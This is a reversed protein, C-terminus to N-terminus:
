TAQLNSARHIRDSQVAQSAGTWCLHHENAFPQKVTSRPIRHIDIMFTQQKAVTSVPWSGIRLLWYLIAIVPYLIVRYRKSLVPPMCGSRVFSYSASFRYAFTKWRFTDIYTIMSVTHSTSSRAASWIKLTWWISARMRCFHQALTPNWCGSCSFIACTRQMDSRPHTVLGNCCSSLIHFLWWLFGHFHTQSSTVYILNLRWCNKLSKLSLPWTWYNATETECAAAVLRKQATRSSLQIHSVIGAPRRQMPCCGIAMRIKSCIQQASTPWTLYSSSHFIKSTTSTRATWHLEDYNM